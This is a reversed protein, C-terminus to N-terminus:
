VSCLNRFVSKSDSNQFYTVGPGVSPTLAGLLPDYHCKKWCQSYKLVAAAAKNPM